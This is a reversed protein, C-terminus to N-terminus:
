ENAFLYLFIVYSTQFISTNYVKNTDFGDDDDDSNSKLGIWETPVKFDEIRHVKRITSVVCQHLDPCFHETTVPTNNSTM